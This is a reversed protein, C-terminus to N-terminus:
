RSLCCRFGAEYSRFGSPHAPNVFGCSPPSGGYCGSWYCGKMVHDYNNANPFSRRVWEAVNGTLDLLGEESICGKRSGSPDAQYLRTAEKQGAAAPYTGLATWDPAIWTKDDNCTSRQYTTGYPYPRKMTGQCARVWEEESCLRKGHAKCWAEGDLASQMALPKVGAVNPAEHRDMCVDPLAVTGEPCGGDGIAADPSGADRSSADPAAADSLGGADPAAADREGPAADVAPATAADLPDAPFPEAGASDGPGCAAGGVLVLALLVRRM